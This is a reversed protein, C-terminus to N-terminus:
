TLIYNSNESFQDPLNMTRTCIVNRTDYRVVNADTKVRDRWGEVDGSM